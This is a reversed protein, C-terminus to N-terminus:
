STCSHESCVAPEARSNLKQSAASAASNAPPAPLIASHWSQIGVTEPPGHFVSSPLDRLNAFELSYTFHLHLIYFTFRLYTFIYILQKNNANANACPHSCLDFRRAARETRADPSYPRQRNVDPDNRAAHTPTDTHTATWICQSIQFDDSVPTM